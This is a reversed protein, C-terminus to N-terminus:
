PTDIAVSRTTPLTLSLTKAGRELVLPLYDEGCVATPAVALPQGQGVLEGVVVLNEQPHKAFYTKAAKAIMRLNAQIAAVEDQPLPAEYSIEGLHPVSITAGAHTRTVRVEDYDEGAVSRLAPRLKGEGEGFLESGSVYREDPHQGLYDTAVSYLIALNERIAAAQQTRRKLATWRLGPTRTHSVTTGGPTRVEITTAAREIQIEYEEGVVSAPTETLQGGASIADYASM